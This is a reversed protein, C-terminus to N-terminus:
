GWSCTQGVSRTGRVREPYWRGTLSSCLVPHGTYIGVPSPAGPLHPADGHLCPSPEQGLALCMQGEAGDEQGRKSM